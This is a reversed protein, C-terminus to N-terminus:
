MEPAEKMARVLIRAAEEMNLDGGKQFLGRRQAIASLLGDTGEVESLDIDFREEAWARLKGSSLIKTAFGHAYAEADMDANIAGKRALEHRDQKPFMGRYDTVMLSSDVRVWQVNTTTGAVPSVRAAKRKALVNILSSKGVNPYGIFLAKVPRTGCRSLICSILRRREKEDAKKASTAVGRRPIKPEEVLDSKNAIVLLRRTGAWKEAIPIRTGEIDRADVLEVIVDAQRILERLRKWGTKM